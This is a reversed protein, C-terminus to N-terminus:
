GLTLVAAKWSSRPLGTAAVFAPTLCWRRRLRARPDPSVTGIQITSFYAIDNAMMDSGLTGNHTVPNQDSAQPDAEPYGGSRGGTDAPTLVIIGPRAATWTRVQGIAVYFHIV